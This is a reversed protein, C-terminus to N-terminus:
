LTDYIDNPKLPYLEWLHIFLSFVLTFYLFNSCLNFYFIQCNVVNVNKAHILPLDNTILYEQLFTVTLMSLTSFTLM